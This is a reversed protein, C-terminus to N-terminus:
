YKTLPLQIEFNMLCTDSASNAGSDGAAEKYYPPFRLEMCEYRSHSTPQRTSMDFTVTPGLDLHLSAINQM